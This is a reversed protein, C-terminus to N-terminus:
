VNAASHQIIAWLGGRLRRARRVWKQSHGCCDHECRCSFRLTDEIAQRVEEEPADSSISLIYLTQEQEGSPDPRRFRKALLARATGVDESENLHGWAANYRRDLQRSLTFKQNLNM